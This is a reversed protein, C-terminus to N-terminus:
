AHWVLSVTRACASSTVGVELYSSIVVDSDLVVDSDIVGREQLHM